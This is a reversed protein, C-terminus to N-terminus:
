RRDMTYQKGKHKARVQEQEADAAIRNPMGYSASWPRMNESCTSVFAAAWFMTRKVHDYGFQGRASLGVESVTM